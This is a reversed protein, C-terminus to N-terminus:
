VGPRTRQYQEVYKWELLYARRRGTITEAILFADVSTNQAGRTTGGELGSDVTSPALIASPPLPTVPAIIGARIRTSPLDAPAKPPM